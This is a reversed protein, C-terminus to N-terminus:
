DHINESRTVNDLPISATHAATPGLATAIAAGAGDRDFTVPPLLEARVGAAGALAAIGAFSQSLHHGVLVVDTDPLRRPLDDTAGASVTLGLNRDTSLRRMWHVLFTSSAGAGCIVLVRQM